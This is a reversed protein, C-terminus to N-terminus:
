KGLSLFYLTARGIPSPSAHIESPGRVLQGRGSSELTRNGKVAGRSAVQASRGSDSTRKYSTTPTAVSLTAAAILTGIAIM